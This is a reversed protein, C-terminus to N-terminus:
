PAPPAKRMDLWTYLGVGAIVLATGLADIWTFAEGLLAVAMGITAVPSVTGIMSTAQPGIRALGANVLFSPVVTAFVAIALSYALFRPSVSFQALDAVALYHVICAFAAASLAISTFLASGLRAIYDKAMLQYLAFSLASGLVLLTGLVVDRGGLRLGQHFVVALGLYTVAAAGLSGATLRAGFFARGLLMVFIPYTFLVLRELQATIYVLGQFDLMSALYYGILGVLVAAGVTGRETVLRTTLSRRRAAVIGVVVFFPLALGMRLALLLEPAPQDLYALKVLIAKASFLVAGAAALLYGAVIARRAAGAPSSEGAAAEESM